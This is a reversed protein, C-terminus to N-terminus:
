PVKHNQNVALALSAAATRNEVGLKVFIHETHKKVTGVHM